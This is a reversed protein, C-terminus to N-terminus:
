GRLEYLLIGAAVGVNLSEVASALPLGVLRSVRSRAEASLGNGENGVALALREPAASREPPPDGAADAGWLQVAEGQLFAGAQDWTVGIAPHAFHAGAAARVVKANWPDVTGPTLLTASCGLAAATRILTGLNGPDQIGDAVLIRATPPLVLSELSREPIAAIVVVGQPSETEAVEALETESVELTTIGRDALLEALAVGRPTQCLHPSILTGHVQLPSALLEEVARVGEAIFLSRRERAKRRRLDRALTLLKVCIRTSHHSSHSKSGQV